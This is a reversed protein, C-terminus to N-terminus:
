WTKTVLFELAFNSEIQAKLFSTARSNMM